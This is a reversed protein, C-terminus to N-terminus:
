IFLFSIGVVIWAILIIFGIIEPDEVHKGLLASVIFFLPSIFWVLTLM